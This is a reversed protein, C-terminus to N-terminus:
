FMNFVRILLVRGLCKCDCCVGVCGLFGLVPPCVPVVRLCAPLCSSLGASLCVTLSLVRVVSVGACWPWSVRFEQSLVDEVRMVLKRRLRNLGEEEQEVKAPRRPSPLRPCARM